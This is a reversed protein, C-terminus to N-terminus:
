TLCRLKEEKVIQVSKFKSCADKKKDFVWRNHETEVLFVVRGDGYTRQVIRSQPPGAFSRYVSFVVVLLLTLVFFEFL